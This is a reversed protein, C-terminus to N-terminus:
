RTASERSNVAQQRQDEDGDLSLVLAEDVVALM